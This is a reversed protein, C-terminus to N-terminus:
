SSKPSSLHNFRRLAWMSGAPLALGVVGAALILGLAAIVFIYMPRSLASWIRYDIAATLFLVVLGILGYIAQRPVLEALNENGGIASRIM